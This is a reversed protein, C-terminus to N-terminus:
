SLPQERELAEFSAGYPKVNEAYWPPGYFRELAVGVSNISEGVVLLMLSAAHARREWTPERGTTMTRLMPAVADQVWRRQHHAAESLEGYIKRTLAETRGLEPEGAATMAAALREEYRQKAKRVESPSIRKGALWRRLLPDEEPDGLADLLRAAEHMARGLHVVEVTYGLLVVDLLSRAIGLCRGAMQWVAAARTDSVLDFDYEDALAQHASVLADIAM